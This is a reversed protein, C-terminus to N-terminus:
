EQAQKNIYKMVRDAMSFGSLVAGEIRPSTCYDGCLGIAQSEDFICDEGLTNIPLAQRWHQVKSDVPKIPEIGCAEFFADLLAHLIRGRFSAAYQLSWEPSSNVVWCENTYNDETQLRTIWSIPSNLVFAADFPLQLSKDFNFKCSWCQTMDINEAVAILDDEVGKLQAVQHASTAIIVMDFLGKYSGREDFLQWQLDDTKAIETIATSLQINCNKALSESIVQLYPHGTYRRIQNSPFAIQGSDLEVVCGDWPRVIGAKQWSEVLSSFLTNSVTFFQGGYDYSNEDFQYSNLRGGAFVSKEFITVIARQKLATACTLGALGSGIVAIKPGSASTNIM